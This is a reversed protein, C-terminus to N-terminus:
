NMIKWHSGAERLSLALMRLRARLAGCLRTRLLPWAEEGAGWRVECCGCQGCRVEEFVGPVSSGQLGHVQEERQM